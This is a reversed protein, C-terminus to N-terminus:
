NNRESMMKARAIMLPGCMCCVFRRKMLANHKTDENGPKWDRPTPWRPTPPTPVAAQRDFPKRENDPASRSKQNPRQRQHRQVANADEDGENPKDIQGIDMPQAGNNTEQDALQAEPTTAIKPATASDTAAVLQRVESPLTQLSSPTAKGLQRLARFSQTKRASSHRDM